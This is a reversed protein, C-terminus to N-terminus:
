PRHVRPNPAESAALVPSADNPAKTFLVLRRKCQPCPRVQGLLHIPARIRANCGSCLVRIHTHM